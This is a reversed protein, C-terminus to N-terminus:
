REVGGAAIKEALPLLSELEEDTLASLNPRSIVHDVRGSHKVNLNADIQGLERAVAENWKRAQDHLSADFAAEYTTKEVGSPLTIETVKVAVQGTEAGAIFESWHKESRAAILADIGDRMQQAYNIRRVKDAIALRKTAEAAGKQIEAIRAQAEETKAWTRITRDTVNMQRAVETAPVERALMAAADLVSTMPLKRAM